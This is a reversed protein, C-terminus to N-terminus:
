EKPRLSFDQENPITKRLQFWGCFNGVFDHEMRQTCPTAVHELPSMHGSSVLREYLVIDAGPDRKGEHTLYSVRACRAASIQAIQSTTFHGERLEAYDPVLPLHWEGYGMLKPSSADMAVRMMASPTQIEPQALPSIRLGWYNSFETSSCIVTHWCFPEILRNALQKHVGVEALRGAFLKASELAEIWIARAKDNAAEGLNESAQMGKQNKGFAEPIFPDEWLSAIRKEVPIARSSASSRSFMRHTNFEALVIRPMTVELTTLRHGAPSVSDALVKASFAMALVRRSAAIVIV